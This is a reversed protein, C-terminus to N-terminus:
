VPYLTFCMANSSFGMGLHFRVMKEEKFISWDYKLVHCGQARFVVVYLSGLLLCFVDVSYRMSDIFQLYEEHLKELYDLSM